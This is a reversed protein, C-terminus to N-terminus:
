PSAIPKRHEKLWRNLAASFDWRRTFLYGNKSGDFHLPAGLMRLTAIYRHITRSTVGLLKAMSSCNPYRDCDIEHSVSGLNALHVLYAIKKWDRSVSM